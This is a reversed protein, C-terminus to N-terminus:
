NRSGLGLVEFHMGGASNSHGNVVKSIDTAKIDLDDAAERISPWIEGTEVCRIIKSLHGQFNNVTISSNDTSNIMNKITGNTSEMLDNKYIHISHMNYGIIFGSGIGFILIATSIYYDKYQNINSKIRNWFTINEEKNYM